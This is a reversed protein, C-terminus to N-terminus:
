RWLAYGLGLAAILVSAALGLMFPRVGGMRLTRFETMLGVGAIAATIVWKGAEGLTAALDLTRDGAGFIFRETMHLTVEPFFGMTRLLAMGVFFLVFTPVLQRYNVNPAVFVAKKRRNRAYIAGIVFVAPGLLSIRTLKVIAAIEGATEGDLHHAFGAAIVQPTAHIALGCWEGYVEAPLSLLAGAFPFVFMALAGLLNVATIAIVIHKEKSEVVPATAVIASTGCIATGVGLLLGQDPDVNFLRSLYRTLLIIAVILVVAGFLVRFGVRILDYFDLDAGLLVIGVPLLKKIVVDVGPKLRIAGPIANRLALGLLLALLVASLPHTGNLTFPAFPLAYLYFAIWTLLTCAAVGWWAPPTPTSLKKRFRDEFKKEKKSLNL